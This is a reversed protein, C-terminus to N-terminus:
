EGKNKTALLVANSLNLLSLEVATMNLILSVPLKDNTQYSINMSSRRTKTTELFYDTIKTVFQATLWEIDALILLGPATVGSSYHRIFIPPSQDGFERLADTYEKEYGSSESDALIYFKLHLSVLNNREPYVVDRLVCLLVAEGTDHHPKIQDLGWRWSFIENRLSAPVISSPDEGFNATICREIVALGNESYNSSLVSANSLPLQKETKCPQKKKKKRKGTTVLAATQDTVLSERTDLMQVTAAAGAASDRSLPLRDM